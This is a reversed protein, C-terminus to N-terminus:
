NNEDNEKKKAEAKKDQYKGVLDFTLAFLIFAIFCYGLLVQMDYNSAMKGGVSIM